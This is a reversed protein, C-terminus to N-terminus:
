QKVVKGAWVPSGDDLLKIFYIGSALNAISISYQMAAKPIEMRQMESGADNLVLLTIASGIPEEFAINLKGSTPNPSVKVKM